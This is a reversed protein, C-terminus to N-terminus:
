YIESLQHIVRVLKYNSDFYFTKYDNCKTKIEIEFLKNDECRTKTIKKLKDCHYISSNCVSDIQNLINKKTIETLQKGAFKCKLNLNKDSCGLLLGFLLIIYIIRM